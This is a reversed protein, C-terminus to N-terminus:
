ICMYIYIHIIVQVFKLTVSVTASSSTQFMLAHEKFEFHPQIKLFILLVQAIWVMQFYLLPTIKNDILLYYILSMHVKKHM